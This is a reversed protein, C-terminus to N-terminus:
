NVKKKMRPPEGYATATSVRQWRHAYDLCRDRRALFRITASRPWLLTTMTATYTNVSFPLLGSRAFSSCHLLPGPFVQNYRVLEILSALVNDMGPFRPTSHLGLNHTLFVVFCFGGLALVAFYLLLSICEWSSIIFAFLFCCHLDLIDMFHKKPYGLRFHSIPLGLETM